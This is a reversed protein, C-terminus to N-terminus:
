KLICPLSIHGVTKNCSQLHEFFMLRVTTWESFSQVVTCICLSYCFMIASLLAVLKQWRHCYVNKKKEQFKERIVFYFGLLFSYNSIGCVCINAYSLNEHFADTHTNLFCQVAHLIETMSLNLLCVTINLTSLLFKASYLLNQVDRCEQSQLWM